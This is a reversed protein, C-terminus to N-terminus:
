SPIDTHICPLAFVIKSKTKIKLEQENSFPRVKPASLAHQSIALYSYATGTRLARPHCSWVFRSAAFRVNESDIVFRSEVGQM